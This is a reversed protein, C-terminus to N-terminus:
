GSTRFIKLLFWELLTSRIRSSLTPHVSSAQESALLHSRVQGSTLTTVPGSQPYFFPSTSATRLGPKQNLLRLSNKVKRKPLEPRRPSTVIQHSVRDGAQLERSGLNPNLWGTSVWTQKSDHHTRDAKLWPNLTIDITSRKWCWGQSTWGPSDPWQCWGCCSWLPSPITNIRAQCIEWKKSPSKKLFNLVICM